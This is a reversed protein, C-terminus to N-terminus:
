YKHDVRGISVAHGLSALLQVLDHAISLHAVGDYEDKGVLLVLLVCELRVCQALQEAEARELVSRPVNLGTRGNFTVTEVLAEDPQALRAFLDDM